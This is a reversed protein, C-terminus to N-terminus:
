VGVIQGVGLLRQFDLGPPCLGGELRTWLGEWLLGYAEECYTRQAPFTFPKGEMWSTLQNIAPSYAHAHTAHGGWSRKQWKGSLSGDPAVDWVDANQWALPLDWGLWLGGFFESAAVMMEDDRPDIAVLAILKRGAILEGSVCRMGVSLMNAGNDTSSDGIVYGGLRCYADVIEDDTIVVEVGSQASQTIQSNGASAFVCNGLDGNRFMQYLLASGNLLGWDRAAPRSPLMSLNFIDRAQVHQSVKFLDAPTRGLKVFRHDIKM